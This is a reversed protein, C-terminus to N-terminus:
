GVSRLPEFPNTPEKPAFKREFYRDGSYVLAGDSKLRSLVSSVTDKAVGPLKERVLIGVDASAMGDSGAMRLLDLVLPTVGNSRKRPAVTEVTEGGMKARLRILIAEETRLQAIEARVRELEADITKMQERATAM